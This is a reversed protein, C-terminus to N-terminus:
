AELTVTNAQQEDYTSKLMSTYEGNGRDIIAHEIGDVEIFTVNDMKCSRVLDSIVQLGLLFKILDLLRLEAELVLLYIVGIQHPEM